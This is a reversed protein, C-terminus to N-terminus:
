PSVAHGDEVPTSMVQLRPGATDEVVEYDVILRKDDAFLAEKRDLLMQIYQQIGHRKFLDTGAIANLADNLHARQDESPLLSLNWCLASFTIAAKFDRDDDIVELIPEAFDMLVESMKRELLLPQRRLPEIEHGTSPNKRRLKGMTSM